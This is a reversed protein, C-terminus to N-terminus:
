LASILCPYSSIGMDSDSGKNSSPLLNDDVSGDFNDPWQGTSRSGGITGSESALIMLSATESWTPYTEESAKEVLRLTRLDPLLARMDRFIIRDRAKNTVPIFKYLDDVLDKIDSILVVFKAKDHVAWMTKLVVGPQSQEGTRSQLEKYSRRFRNLSSSSLLRQKKGKGDLSESARLGYQEQLKRGNEFLLRIAELGRKVLRSKAQVDLELNRGEGVTKSIGNAEGWVIFKEHEFDLKLLLIELDASLSQATKFYEFYELCISFLPALGLVLSIGTIPDM